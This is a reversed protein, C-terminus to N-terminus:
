NAAATPSQHVSNLQQKRRRSLDESKWRAEIKRLEAEPLASIEKRMRGEADKIHAEYAESLPQDLDMRVDRNAKRWETMRERLLRARVAALEKRHVLEPNTDPRETPTNRVSPAPAIM